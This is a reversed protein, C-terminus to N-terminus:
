FGKTWQQRPKTLSGTMLAIDGQSLPTDATVEERALSILKQTHLTNTMKTVNHMLEHFALNSLGKPDDQQGSVYVESAVDKSGVVTTGSEGLHATPHLGTVVSASPSNVFYVLLDHTRLKPARSTWVVSASSFASSQGVVKDFHEQLRRRIPAPWEIHAISGLYVTLTSNLKINFAARSARFM